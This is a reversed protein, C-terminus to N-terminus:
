LGKKMWDTIDKSFNFTAWNNTVEIVIIKDNQNMVSKLRNLVEMSGLTTKILWVSDSTKAWSSATKILNILKIYDSSSKSSILNYSILYTKM